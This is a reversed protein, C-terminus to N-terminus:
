LYFKVAVYGFLGVFVLGLGLVTTLLMSATTSLVTQLLLFLGLLVVVIAGGLLRANRWSRWLDFLM